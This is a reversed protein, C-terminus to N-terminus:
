WGVASRRGRAGRGKIYRARPEAARTPPAFPNVIAVGDITQGNNLDESLISRCGSSSACRVILADWFALTHLRQLDIADLILEPRVVILDLRSLAEVRLRADEPPLGLKRTAVVYYEQLVQTSIVAREDAILSTLVEIARTRKAGGNPDDAYVLVNTDVFVRDAM